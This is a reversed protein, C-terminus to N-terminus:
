RVGKNYYNAKIVIDEAEDANALWTKVPDIGEYNVISEKSGEFTILTSSGVKVVKKVTRGARGTRTFLKMGPALKDKIWALATAEVKKSLALQYTELKSSVTKHKNRLSKDGKLRRLEVMIDEYLDENIRKEIELAVNVGKERYDKFNDYKRIEMFTLYYNIARILTQKFEEFSAIKLAGHDGIKYKKSTAIDWGYAKNVSIRWEGVSLRELLLNIKDRPSTEVILARMTSQKSIEALLDELEQEYSM